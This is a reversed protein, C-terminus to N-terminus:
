LRSRTRERRIEFLVILEVRRPCIVGESSVRIYPYRGRLRLWMTDMAGPHPVVDRVASASSVLELKQDNQGCNGTTSPVFCKCQVISSWLKFTANNDVRDRNQEVVIEIQRSWM